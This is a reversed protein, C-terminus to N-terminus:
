ERTLGKGHCYTTDHLVHDVETGTDQRSLILTLGTLGKLERLPRSIFTADSTSGQVISSYLMAAFPFYIVISRAAANALIFVLVEAVHLPLGSTTEARYERSASSTNMNKIGFAERQGLGDKMCKCAPEKEHSGPEHLIIEHGRVGNPTVRDSETRLHDLM